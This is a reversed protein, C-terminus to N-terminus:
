NFAQTPEGQSKSALRTALLWIAAVVAISVYGDIAYHWGFYVSGFQIIGFYIWAVVGAKRNISYAFLANLFALAVHLSPMAAIGTGMEVTKSSYASFLYDTIQMLDAGSPNAHLNTMLDAFRDSHIIRDYFIPGASSGLIRLPSSLVIVSVVLASFYRERAFRDALMSAIVIALVVEVFWLASYLIFLPYDLATPLIAHLYQWPDGFHLLHDIRALEEDAFFPIRLSYEHKLTTFATATVVLTAVIITAGKARESLKQVIFTAPTKPQYYIGAFVIGSLLIIPVYIFYRTIPHAGAAAVFADPFAFFAGASYIFCLAFLKQSLTTSRTIRLATEM